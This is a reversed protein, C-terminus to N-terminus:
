WALQPWTDDINNLDGAIEDLFGRLYLDDRQNWRRIDRELLEGTAEVDGALRGPDELSREAVQGAAAALRDPRSAEGAAQVTLTNEITNLRREIRQKSRPESCGGTVALVALWVAAWRYM